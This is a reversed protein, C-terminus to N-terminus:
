FHHMAFSYVPLFYQPLMYSPLTKALSHKLGKVLRTIYSKAISDVAVLSHPVEGTNATTVIFVCLARQQKDTPRIAKIALRIGPLEREICGQIEKLQIRNGRIKVQSNIRGIYLLSGSASYKVLDGTRYMRTANTLKEAWAPPSIFAIKTEEFDNLYGRALAPGDLLLEGIAEIPCLKNIIDKEIIWTRM